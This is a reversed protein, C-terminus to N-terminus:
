PKTKSPTGAEKKPLLLPQFREKEIVLIKEMALPKDFEFFYFKGSSDKVVAVTKGESVEEEWMVQYFDKGIKDANPAVPHVGGLMLAIAFLVGAGLGFPVARWGEKNRICFITLTAFLIASVVLICTMVTITEM